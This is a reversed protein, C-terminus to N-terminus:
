RHSIRKKGDCWKPRPSTRAAPHPPGGVLYILIVSKRSSRIDASSEAKLMQPLTFGAVGLSGIKLFGRRDLRQHNAM